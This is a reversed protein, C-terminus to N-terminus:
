VAAAIVGGPRTVRRAEQLASLPDPIFNFVLLSLSSEFTADAFPLHGADGIEFKVRDSDPNRGTAYAVYEKSPDLGVVHVNAKRKIIEFSLSGTGSGIDLVQGKDPVNTWELFRAAVLRSWRGMFREYAEANAFM